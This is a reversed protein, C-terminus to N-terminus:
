WQLVPSFVLGGTTHRKGTMAAGKETLVARHIQGISGSAVPQQDIESFLEHLPLGFAEEIARQTHKFKHGPAQLAPPRSPPVCHPPRQPSPPSWPYPVDCSM